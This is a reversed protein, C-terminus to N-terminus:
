RAGAMLCAARIARYSCLRDIKTETATWTNQHSGKGFEQLYSKGKVSPRPIM